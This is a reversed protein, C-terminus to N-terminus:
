CISCGENHRQAELYLSQCLETGHCQSLVGIQFKKWLRRANKSHFELDEKCDKVGGSYRLISREGGPHWKIYATADYICGDAVLWASNKSNHRRVQCITYRRYDKNYRRNGDYYSSCPPSSGVNLQRQAENKADAAIRKGSCTRCSQNECTDNCFPCADCEDACECAELLLEEENEDEDHEDDDLVLCACDEGEGEDVDASTYGAVVADHVHLRSETNHFRATVGCKHGSNPNTCTSCTNTNELKAKTKRSRVHVHEVVLCDCPAATSGDESAFSARSSMSPYAPPCDQLQCCITIDKTSTTTIM